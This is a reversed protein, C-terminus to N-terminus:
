ISRHQRMSCKLWSHLMVESNTEACTSSDDDAARSAAMSTSGSTKTSSQIYNANNDGEKVLDAAPSVCTPHGSCANLSKMVVHSHYVLVVSTTGPAVTIAPSPSKTFAPSSANGQLWLRSYVAVVTTFVSCGCDHLCQFWLRCRCKM